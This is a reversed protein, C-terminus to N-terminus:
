DHAAQVEEQWKFRPKKITRPSTWKAWQGSHVLKEFAQLSAISPQWGYTECLTLYHRSAEYPM